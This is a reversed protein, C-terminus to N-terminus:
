CITGGGVVLDGDYAVVAQGPAIGRQLRGFVVRMSGDPGPTLVADQEQQHYRTRVSARFPGETEPANWNWDRAVLESAFLACEPGAVVTNSSMDKGCVFYPEKLGGIGLGKRQGITYAIAGKHTGIRKGDVDVIDGPECAVDAYRGLFGLYSGDPVFCIDESESKHATLLGHEQAIRRVQAKTMGGLPLLVHELKEPTLSYLVYSQDKSPDTAKALRPHGGDDRVIRAYHGTAIFDCGLSLAKEYLLGFKLRRNCVICPNPTEGALYSEVFDHVVTSEFEDACDLEVFPIGLKACVKRADEVDDSEAPKGLLKETCLRMTAGVCEYGQEKLLLATTSSDVGGSMAVLVKPM